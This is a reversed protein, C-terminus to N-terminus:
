YYDEIKIDELALFLRQNLITIVPVIVRGETSGFILKIGSVALGLIGIFFLPTATIAVIPAVISTSAAILTTHGTLVLMKNAESLIMVKIGATPQLIQNTLKYGYQAIEKSNVGVNKIFINRILQMEQSDAGQMFEEKQNPTMQSIFLQIMNTLFEEEVESIFPDKSNQLSGFLMKGSIQKSIDTQLMNKGVRILMDYWNTNSGLLNLKESTSNCRAQMGAHNRNIIDWAEAHTDGFNPQTFITWGLFSTV